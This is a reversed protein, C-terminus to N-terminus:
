THDVETFTNDYIIIKNEVGGKIYKLYLYYSSSIFKNEHIWPRDLLINYSTKTDIVYTLESSKLDEIHVYLKISGLVSQGGQNVRQIM